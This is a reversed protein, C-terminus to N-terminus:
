MVSCESVEKAAKMTEDIYMGKPLINVFRILRKLNNVDSSISEAVGPYQVKIVVPTGDHLTAAHVQGISAAAMPKMDFTQIKTEWDIGLETELARELQKRPMVDAGDRVRDLIAQLQPPLLSDDQISLMQGVKLAAGRM